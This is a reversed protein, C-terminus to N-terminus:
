LECDRIARVCMAALQILETRMQPRTDRNKNLNFKFVEDKFEEFEEWIVGLYYHPNNLGPFLSEARTVEAEVEQLQSIM